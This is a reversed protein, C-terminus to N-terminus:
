QNKIYLENLYNIIASSSVLAFKAESETTLVKKESGKPHKAIDGSLGNLSNIIGGLSGHIRYKNHDKLKAILVSLKNDDEGTIDKCASEIAKISELISANYQPNERDSFLQNAKMLLDKAEDFSSVLANNISEIEIEDTISMFRRTNKMIRYGSINKKLAINLRNILVIIDNKTDYLNWTDLLFELLYFFQYYPLPENVYVEEDKVGLLALRIDQFVKLEYFKQNYNYDYPEEYMDAAKNLHEAWYKEDIKYFLNDDISDYSLKSCLKYIANWIANRTDNDQEEIQLEKMNIFGNRELFNIEGIRTM